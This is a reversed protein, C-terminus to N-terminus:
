ILLNKLKTIFTNYKSVDLSYYVYKSKKERRLFGSKYLVAIHQSVLSQDIRLIYMLDTVSMQEKEMLLNVIKQRWPNDLAKLTKISKRLLIIDNEEM